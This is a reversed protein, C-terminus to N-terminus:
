PTGEVERDSWAPWEASRMAQVVSHLVRLLDELPKPALYSVIRNEIIATPAGAVATALLYSYVGGDIMDPETYRAAFYADRSEWVVLDGMNDLFHDIVLGESDKGVSFFTIYTYM